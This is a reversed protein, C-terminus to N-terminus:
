DLKGKSVVAVNIPCTSTSLSDGGCFIEIYDDGTYNVIVGGTLTLRAQGQKGSGCKYSM